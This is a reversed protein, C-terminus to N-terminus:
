VTRRSLVAALDSWDHGVRHSGMSPLGGPEGTGPIRWALTSSHPAMAKEVQVACRAAKFPWQKGQLADLSHECREGNNCKKQEDVMKLIQRWFAILQSLSVSAMRAQFRDWTLMWVGVCFQRLIMISPNHLLTQIWCYITLLCAVAFFDWHHCNSTYKKSM